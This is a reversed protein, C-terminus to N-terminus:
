RLRYVDMSFTKDCTWEELSVVVECEGCLCAHAFRTKGDADVHLCLPEDDVCLRFPVDLQFQFRYVGHNFCGWGTWQAPYPIRLDRLTLPSLDNSPLGETCAVGEIGHDLTERAIRIWVPRSASALPALLVPCCALWYDALGADQSAARTDAAAPAPAEVSQKPPTDSAAQALPVARVQMRLNDRLGAEFLRYGDSGKPVVFDLTVPVFPALPVYNGNGFFAPATTFRVRALNGGAVGPVCLSLSEVFGDILQAGTKNDDASGHSAGVAVVRRTQADFWLRVAEGNRYAALVWDFQARATHREPVQMDLVLNSTALAGTLLSIEARDAQEAQAGTRNEAFLQLDTVFGDVTDLKGFAAVSDRTIRVVRDLMRPGDGGEGTLYEIEVPEARNMADRLIGLKSLRENFREPDADLDEIQYESTDGSDELLRAVVLGARGVEMRVVFGRVTRIQNAM